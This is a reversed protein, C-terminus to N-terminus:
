WDDSGTIEEEFFDGQLQLALTAEIITNFDVETLPIVTALSWTRGGDIVAFPSRVAAWAAVDEFSLNGKAAIPTSIKLFDTGLYPLFQLYAAQQRGSELNFTVRYVDASIEQADPQWAKLQKIVSSKSM